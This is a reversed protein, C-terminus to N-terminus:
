GSQYQPHMGIVRDLKMIPNPKLVFMDEDVLTRTVKKVPKPYMSTDQDYYFTVEAKSQLNKEELNL